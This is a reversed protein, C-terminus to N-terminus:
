HTLERVIQTALHPDMADRLPLVQERLARVLDEVRERDRDELHASEAWSSINEVSRFLKEFNPVDRAGDHVSPLSTAFARHLYRRLVDAQEDSAFCLQLGMGMGPFSTRVVAEVILHEPELFLTLQLRTGVNLPIRSDIYCGGESIDTCHCWLKVESGASQIQVGIECAHRPSRRREQLPYTEAVVARAPITGQRIPESRWFGAAIECGEIGLEGETGDARAGIWQVRFKGKSAGAQVGIVDGVSLAVAVNGLVAGSGSASLHHARVHFAKGRTDLGYLRVHIDALTAVRKPLRGSGM